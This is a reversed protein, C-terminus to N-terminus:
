PFLPRTLSPHIHGFAFFGGEVRFGPRGYSLRAGNRLRITGGSEALICHMAAIDWEMVDGARFYVDAEGKAVLCGKLSSGAYRVERIGSARVFSMEDESLHSRSMVARPPDYPPVSSIRQPEGEGDQLFAGSGSCAFFLEGLVPAFIAGIVPVGSEILAINVTFEGNGALFEKTGDLPDVLFFMEEAPAQSRASEESVVPIGPFAKSLGSTIIRNAATDAVTVPSGDDQLRASFRRSDEDIEMIAHGAELALRRITPMADGRDIM